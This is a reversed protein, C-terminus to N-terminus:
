KLVFLCVGWLVFLGVWLGGCVCVFVCVFVIGFVKEGLSMLLSM